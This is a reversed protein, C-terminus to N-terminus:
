ECDLCNESYFFNIVYWSHEFYAEEVRGKKNKCIFDQSQYVLKNNKRYIGFHQTFPQTYEPSAQPTSSPMEPLPSPSVEPPPPLSAETSKYNFGKFSPPAHDTDNHIHTWYSQVSSDANIILNEKEKPIEFLHFLTAKNM